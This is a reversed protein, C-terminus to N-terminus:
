KNNIIIDVIYESKMLEDGQINLKVIGNKILLITPVYNINLETSVHEFNENDRNEDTDYYYIDFTDQLIHFAEKIYPEAEVCSPCTERSFLVIAENEVEDNLFNLIESSDISKLNEYPKTKFGSSIFMIGIISFIFFFLLLMM